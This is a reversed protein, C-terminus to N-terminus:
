EDEDGNDSALEPVPATAEIVQYGDAALGQAWAPELNGSWTQRGDIRNFRMVRKDPLTATVVDSGPCIDDTITVVYERM